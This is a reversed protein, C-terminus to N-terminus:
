GILMQSRYALIRICAECLVGDKQIVKGVFTKKDNTKWEVGIKCFINRENSNYFFFQRGWRARMFMAVGSTMLTIIFLIKLPIDAEPHIGSARNSEITAPDLYYPLNLLNISIDSMKSISGTFM